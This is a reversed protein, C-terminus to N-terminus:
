FRKEKARNDNQEHDTKAQSQLQRRPTQRPQHPCIELAPLWAQSAVQKERLIIFGVQSLTRCVSPDQAQSARLQEVTFSSLAFTKFRQKALTADYTQKLNNM